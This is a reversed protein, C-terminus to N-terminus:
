QRVNTNLLLHCIVKRHAENNELFYFCYNLIWPIAKECADRCPGFALRLSEPVSETLRHGMDRVQPGVRNPAEKDLNRDGKM